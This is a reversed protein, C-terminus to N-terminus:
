NTTLIKKVDKLKNIDKVAPGAEIGSNVDVAYLNPAPLAIASGINLSSLGGSLFFPVQQDYRDLLRWDFTQANGGFYKGKTDFLFYDSVQTYSRTTEFDTTEDVAFVKIVKLKNRRLEFCQEPSEKGHLQLFDLQHKEAAALMNRTSENVFVGVKKIEKPLADPIHFNEGVFRPSEPYFIFGMFDPLFAAVQMINERDRMGCVKLKIEKWDKM